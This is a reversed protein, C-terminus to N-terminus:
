RRQVGPHTSQVRHIHKLQSNLLCVHSIDRIELCVVVSEAVGELTTLGGGAPQIPPVDGRRVQYPAFKLLPYNWCRPRIKVPDSEM